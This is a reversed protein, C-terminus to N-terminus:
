FFGDRRRNDSDNFRGNGSDRRISAEVSDGNDSMHLDNLSIGNRKAWDEAEKRSGFRGVNDFQFSM